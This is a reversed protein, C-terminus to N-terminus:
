AATGGEAEAADLENSMSKLTLAKLEAPANVEKNALALMADLAWQLVPFRKFLEQVAPHAVINTPDPVPEPGPPVIPTKTVFRLGVMLVSLLVGAISVLAPHQKILEDGALWTAVSILFTLFAAWLTKSALARALIQRLM